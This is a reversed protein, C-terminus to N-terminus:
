LSVENVSVHAADERALELELPSEYIDADLTDARVRGCRPLYMM